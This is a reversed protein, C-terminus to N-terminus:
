VAAGGADRDAHRARAVDPLARARCIGARRARLARRAHRDPLQAPPAAALGPEAMGAPLASLRDSPGAPDASGALKQGWNDDHCQACSLNLQGQRRQSSRRPRGRPVAQARRRDAADIPMGRSQRGVYATLALLEKSEYPSRRRRSSSPAASTSASSRSRGAPRARRRLGSLARRRGEHEHARRRPLRRLGQEAAGAKRKWLAEGDLVWLMGPNATDDDQMARTERSMFEYGSRREALPIEARGSLRRRVGAPGIACRSPASSAALKMRRHHQGIETASFGNDGTWHVDITGSETAVTSFAIFPNAAIAPYLEARFIEEGNYTCVFATIIDRPISAALQAHRFGTEMPHSILTKIEIIEGRKAKTPVNILARAM